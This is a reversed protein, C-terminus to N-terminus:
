VGYKKNNEAKIASQEWPHDPHGEPLRGAPGDIVKQGDIDRRFYINGEWFVWDDGYDARGCEMDELHKREHRIVRKFLKSDEPINSDINITGDNNAEALVGHELDNKRLISSKKWPLRMDRRESGLKFAM